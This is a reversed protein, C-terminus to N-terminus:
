ANDDESNPLFGTGHMLLLLIVIRVPFFLAIPAFLVISAYKAWSVDATWGFVAFPVGLLAALPYVLIFPESVPAFLLDAIRERRERNMPCRATFEAIRPGSDRLLGEKGLSM